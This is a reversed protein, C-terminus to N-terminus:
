HMTEAASRSTFKPNTPVDAPRGDYPVIHRFQALYANARVPQSDTLDM